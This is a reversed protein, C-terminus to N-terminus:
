GDFDFVEVTEKKGGNKPTFSVEFKGAEKHVM